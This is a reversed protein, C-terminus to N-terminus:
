PTTRSLTDKIRLVERKLGLIVNLDGPYNASDYLSLASDLSAEAEDFFRVKEESSEHIALDLLVVALDRHIMGWDQPLNERACVQLADRFRSVAAFRLRKGKDGQVCRALGCDAKGVVWQTLAWERPSEKQTYVELVSDYLCLAKEFLPACDRNEVRFGWHCFVNGLNRQTQAWLQQFKSRVRVELAKRYATEAERLLLTDNEPTRIALDSLVNGLNNQV